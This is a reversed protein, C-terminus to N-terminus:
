GCAALVTMRTTNPQGDPMTVAQWPVIHLPGHVGDDFTRTMDCPTNPDVRGFALATFRDPAQVIQYAVFNGVTVASPPAPQPPVSNTILVNSRVSNGTVPTAATSPAFTTAYTNSHWADLCYEQVVVLPVQASTAPAAVQIEGAKTAIATKGANCTGYEVTTRVLSGVGTAPIATGDVNQTANMWSVTKTDALAATSLVLGLVFAVFRM